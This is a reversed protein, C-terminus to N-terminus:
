GPDIGQWGGTRSPYPQYIMVRDLLGDYRRRIQSAVLAPAAVRGARM